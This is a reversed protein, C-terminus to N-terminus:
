LRLPRQRHAGLRAVRARRGAAARGARRVAGARGGHAAGAAAAGGVRRGRADRLVREVVCVCVSKNRSLWAM